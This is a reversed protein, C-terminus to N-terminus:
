GVASTVRLRPARPSKSKRRQILKEAAGGRVINQKASFIKEVRDCQCPPSIKRGRQQPPPASRLSPFPKASARVRFREASEVEGAARSLNASGWNGSRTNARARTTRRATPHACPSAPS